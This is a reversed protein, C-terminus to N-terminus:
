SVPGHISSGVVSDGRSDVLSPAVPVRRCSLDLVPVPCEIAEYRSVADLLM